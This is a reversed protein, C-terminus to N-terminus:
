TKQRNRRNQAVGNPLRIESFIARKMCCRKRTLNGAKTPVQIAFFSGAAGELATGSCWFHHSPLGHKDPDGPLDLVINVTEGSSARRKPVFDRQCEPGTESCFRAPIGPEGIHPCVRVKPSRVKSRSSRRLHRDSRRPPPPNRAAWQAASSYSPIVQM